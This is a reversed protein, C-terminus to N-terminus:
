VNKLNEIMFITVKQDKKQSLIDYGFEHGLDYYMHTSWMHMKKSFDLGM